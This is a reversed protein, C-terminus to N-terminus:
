IETFKVYVSNVANEIAKITNELSAVDESAFVQSKGVLNAHIDFQEIAFEDAAINVCMLDNNHLKKEYITIGAYDQEVFGLEFLKDILALEQEILAAETKLAEQNQETEQPAPQTQEEPAQEEPQQSNPAQSDITHDEVHDEDKPEANAPEDGEEDEFTLPKANYDQLLSDLALSFSPLDSLDDQNIYTMYIKQCLKNGDETILIKMSKVLKEAHLKERLKPLKPYAM